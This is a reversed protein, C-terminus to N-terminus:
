SSFCIFTIQNSKIQLETDIKHSDMLPLGCYNPRASLYEQRLIEYRNVDNCRFLYIESM